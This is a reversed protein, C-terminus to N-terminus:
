RHVVPDLDERRVPLEQAEPAFHAGLRAPEPIRIIQRKIARAAEVHGLEAVAADGDKRGLPPEEGAEPTRAAGGALEVVGPAEIDRLSAVDVHRIGHVVPDLLERWAGLRTRADRTGGAGGAGSQPRAKRRGGSGPPGGPRALSTTAPVGS